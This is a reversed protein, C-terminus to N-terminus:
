MSKLIENRREEGSKNDFLKYAIPTIMFSEVTLMYMNLSAISQDKIVFISLFYIFIIMIISELKQRKRQSEKMIPRNETDAPAYLLALMLNLIMLVTYILFSNEFLFNKALYASGIVLFISTLACSIHTKLHVGGAFGRYILLTITGILVLKLVGCVWAVLLIFIGKPLEGIINQLGYYIIESKDEDITSDNAMIKKLLWDCISDVM